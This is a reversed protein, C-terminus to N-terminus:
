AARYARLTWLLCIGLILAGLAVHATPIFANLRGNRYSLFGLLLQLPLLASLLASPRALGPEAAQIGQAILCGALILVLAAWLAHVALGRGTHRLVAGWFLQLYVAAFACAGLKWSGCSLSEAALRRYAPSTIEALALLLCFVAQALCAHAISIAPPLRWLVTVAGLLAQLVIAACAGYAILRVWRRSEQFHILYALGFTLLSVAGAIMRHSHEFLVGGRMPPFIKGFSLPWDPVSLGSGTSTVLGGAILLLFAAAATAQSFRYRVM